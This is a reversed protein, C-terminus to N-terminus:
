KQLKKAGNTALTDAIENGQVGSHGRVHTWQISQSRTKILNCIPKIIDQNKVPTLVGPRSGRTKWGNREWAKSWVDICNISYKSDTLIEINPYDPVALLAKYIAYLEARQNTPNALPFSESIDSLGVTNSFHVGIGAIANRTGNGLCAGDTFVQFKDHKNRKESIRKDVDDTDRARKM